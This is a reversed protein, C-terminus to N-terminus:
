THPAVHQRYRLQVFHYIYYGSEKVGSHQLSGTLRCCKVHSSVIFASRLFLAKNRAKSANKRSEHCGRLDIIVESLKRGALEGISEDLKTIRASAQDRINTTHAMVFAANGLAYASRSVRHLHNESIILFCWLELLMKDVSNRITSHDNNVSRRTLQESLM